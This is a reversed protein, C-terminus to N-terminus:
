GVVATHADLRGIAEICYRCQQDVAARVSEHHIVGTAWDTDQREFLDEVCKQISCRRRLLPYWYVKHEQNKRQGLRVRRGTAVERSNRDLAINNGGLKGWVRCTHFSRCMARFHQM